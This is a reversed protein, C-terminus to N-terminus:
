EHFPFKYNVGVRVFPEGDLVTYVDDLNEIDEGLINAVKVFIDYTDAIHITVGADLKTYDKLKTTLGDSNDDAEDASPKWNWAERRFGARVGLFAAIRLSTSLKETASIKGYLSSGPSYPLQRGTDKDQNETYTYGGELMIHEGANISVGAEAGYVEANKINRRRWVDITPDKDWPGEYVPVIMDDLDSYFGYLMIKVSDTPKGELGATYTTSYEPDLDPNGFRYASGGHGYGEEYL